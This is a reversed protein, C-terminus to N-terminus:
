AMPYNSFPGAKLLALGHCLASEGPRWDHSIGDVDWDPGFWVMWVVQCDREGANRMIEGLFEEEEEEGLIDDGVDSNEFGLKRAVAEANLVGFVDAQKRLREHQIDPDEQDDGADFDAGHTGYSEWMEVEALSRTRSASATIPGDIHPTAFTFARRGSAASETRRENELEEARMKADSIREVAKLHEPYQLHNAGSRAAM